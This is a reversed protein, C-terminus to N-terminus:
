GVVSRAFDAAVRGLDAAIEEDPRKTGRVRFSHDGGEVAHLSATAGLREVLAQMLDFTALSDATGQIFLMPIRIAPLHADRPRDPKGPAHLPYGFFVLAAAPFAGGMEAALLSTMRGGLSKGSAVLPARGSLRGALDLAGRWAELLVPPRDPSRRGEEAFPFNFRLVSVGGAALGDAVGALFRHQMGAGAGHAVVTVAAARPVKTWLGSLRRGGADFSVAEADRAM